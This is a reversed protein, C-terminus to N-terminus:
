RRQWVKGFGEGSEVSGETEISWGIEGDGEVTTFIGGDDKM